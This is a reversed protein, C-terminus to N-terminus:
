KFLYRIEIENAGASVEACAGSIIPMMPSLHGIDLDMLIPVGLCGLIDTVAAYQDTNFFPGGNLPRGILFGAAHEFWGAERMQWMARRIQMTNLDCCELFWIAGDAAYRANYEKM